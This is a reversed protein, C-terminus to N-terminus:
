KNYTENYYQKGNEYNGVCRMQDYADEIQEKEMAKAQEKLEDLQGLTLRIDGLSGSVDAQPLAQNLEEILEQFNNEGTLQFNRGCEFARKMENYSYNTKMKQEKEMAKAKEIIDVPILGIFDEVQDILWEVATQKM